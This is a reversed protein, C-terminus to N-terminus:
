GVIRAYTGGNQAALSTLFQESIQSGVAVANIRVRGANRERVAALTENGYATPDQGPCDTTGDSYLMVVKRRANSRDAFDLAKLLGEKVCSGSGGAASQIFALAEQKTEAAAPAPAGDAPFFLLGRDFFIVAFESSESLAEIIRMVERKAIQIEGADQMSGSRDIVFIFTDSFGCPVHDQTPDLGLTPFPALPEPGRLFLYHLLYIGDSLDIEGDDNLDAADPCVIANIQPNGLLLHGLIWIPDTISFRGDNNVDGRIFPTAAALERLGPGGAGFLLVLSLMSLVRMSEVPIRIRMTM